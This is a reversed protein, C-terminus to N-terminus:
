PNYSHLQAMVKILQDYAAVREDPSLGPLNQDLFIRGEVFEM